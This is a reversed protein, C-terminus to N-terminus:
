GFLIHLPVSLLMGAFGGIIVAGDIAFRREGVERNYVWAAAAGALAGIAMWKLVILVGDGSFPAGDNMSEEIGYKDALAIVPTAIGCALSITTRALAASRM